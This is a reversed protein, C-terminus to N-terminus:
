ENDTGKYKIIQEYLEDLNNNFDCKYIMKVIEGKQIFYLKDCVKELENLIHSSIVVAVKQESLKKIYNRVYNIGEPDLGNIPEDLIVLKPSNIMTMAIGLRQKMGLSYKKVKKRKQVDLGVDAIVRNCTERIKTKEIGKMLAEIELNLYGSLHNYMTPTEIISNVPIEGLSKWYDISKQNIEIVGESPNTVGCMMKMITTKGAGNPGILGVIEGENVKMNVNRVLIEKGYEKSVSKLELIM